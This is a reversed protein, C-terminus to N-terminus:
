SPHQHLYCESPLNLFRMESFYGCRMWQNFARGLGPISGYYPPWSKSAVGFYLVRHTLSLLLYPRIVCTSVMHNEVVQNFSDWSIGTSSPQFAALMCDTVKETEHLCAALDGVDFGTHQLNLVVM